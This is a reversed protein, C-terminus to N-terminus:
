SLTGQAKLKAHFRERRISAVLPDEEDFVCESLLIRPRNKFRHEVALVVDDSHAAIFEIGTIKLWWCNVPSGKKVPVRVSRGVLTQLGEKTLPPIAGPPRKM